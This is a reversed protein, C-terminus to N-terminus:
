VIGYVKKAIFYCILGFAALGATICFFWTLDGEIDQGPVWVNMGWMGTIINMPLVITGLVTLKGLVDANQEARENMRINIQAVYNGHARSLLSEYHSLNGTMTVIHDQIDGLYLGIESRPAVEWHENCRKAFGKIVDAKNGLLRYLGMVKKRSEGVRRLLDGGSEGITKDGEAKQAGMDAANGSGSRETKTDLINKKAPRPQPKQKVASNNNDAADAATTHMYLIDEDIVDVEQEIESVLPAYVDTVDDIIAYSIWDATPSMYDNLQRIRRRVNAPHPSMSHHFSIVGDRFVIVYMNIPEMYDESDKDQEFTRYNVFYYHQFLEVKERPEDMLIDEITLQHIGFAKALIKMETETPKLVDLWFTPRPGQHKGPAPQAPQKPTANGSVPASEIGSRATAAISATRGDGNTSMVDAPKANSDSSARQHMAPRALTNESRGQDDDESDDSLEVPDPLFLEKFEMGDQLLDSITRAHITGDLTENFYTFRFPADDEERHWATKAPRLRGGVMVPESIRKARLFDQHTRAEKEERSWEDLVELDPWQRARRRRRRTSSTHREHTHGEEEEECAESDGDDAPFCVDREALEAVTPRRRSEPSESTWRKGNDRPDINIVADRGRDSMSSGLGAMFVDDAAGIVPSGPMSPPNNVDHPEENLGLRNHTIVEFGRQRSSAKSHNSARRHGRSGYNANSNGRSTGPRENRNQTSLLPTRDNSEREEEEEEDFTNSRRGLRSKNPANLNSREVSAASSRHQHRSSFPQAVRAFGSKITDRRSRPQQYERHDLLAESELSTNSRNGSNNLRYFSAQHSASNRAATDLLSPREGTPVNEETAESPAIFSQRRNRRKKGARHKKKKPPASETPNAASSSANSPGPKAMSDPGAVRAIADRSSGAM